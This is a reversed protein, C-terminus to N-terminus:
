WFAARGVRNLDRQLTDSWVCFEPWTNPNFKIVSIYLGLGYRATFM